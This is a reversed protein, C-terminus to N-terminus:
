NTRPYLIHSWVPGTINLDADQLIHIHLYVYKIFLIRWDLYM